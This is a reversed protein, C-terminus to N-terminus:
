KGTKPDYVNSESPYCRMWSLLSFQTNKYVGAQSSQSSLIEKQNTIYDLRSQQIKREKKTKAYTSKQLKAQKKAAELQIYKLKKSTNVPLSLEKLNQVIHEDKLLEFDNQLAQADEKSKLTTIKTSYIRIFDDVEVSSCGVEEAGNAALNMAILFSFLSLTLSRLHMVVKLKNM